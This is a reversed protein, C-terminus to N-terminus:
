VAGPGGDRAYDDITTHFQYHQRSNMERICCGSPPIIRSDIEDEVMGRPCVGPVDSLLHLFGVGPVIITYM